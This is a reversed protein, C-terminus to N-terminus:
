AAPAVAVHPRMQKHLALVLAGMGWILVAFGILPGAVPVMYLARLVALGLALRGIAPGVGVGAGLLKEGLWAGVFVQAAYLAILYLLVASIGVALGVITICAVIAAIPIGFLFLAGFGVAPGVRKSAQVADFLFGPALLLLLLGFVFSAGWLLVQHWYYRLRSYDPGRRPVTVQIPSALKASPSVDPSRNGRYKTQGAIEATPGIRLRDGRIMADRGLSGNIEASRALALLDGAVRGDLVLATTGVTMTGGVRAKRDLEAENVWAMVNRAVTSSLTLSQSFVRVNGDVPGNVRIRSAFALIDGKIHGDVNVSSSFVILDGDVDGDIEVRDAAVILDTKLEQGAPLTYSPDGHEIDAASAPSPFALGFTVAGMVFAVPTFRHWQRRLLWIVVAGLTGLALLETLSRMSDWGKWLTGNVFLITLVDGQTFGSQAAQALWPEVIGTWFTYVGFLSLSFAAIWGWHTASRGPAALVRAPVSEEEVALAERLWVGETELAGLLARCQACDALHASVDRAHDADLQRELYLLATMEDFHGDIRSM